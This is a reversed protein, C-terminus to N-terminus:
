VGRAKVNLREANQSIKMRMATTRFSALSRPNIFLLWPRLKLMGSSKSNENRM